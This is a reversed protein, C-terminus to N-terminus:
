GLKEDLIKKLDTDLIKHVKDEIIKTVTKKFKPSKLLQDTNEVLISLIYNDIKAKTWAVLKSAKEKLTKLINSLTEKM